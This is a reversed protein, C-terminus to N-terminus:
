FILNLVSGAASVGTNFATAGALVTQKKTERLTLAQMNEMRLRHMEEEYLNLAEKLSNARSNRYYSAISRVADSYWYDEPLYRMLVPYVDKYKGEAVLLYEEAKKAYKKRSLKKKIEVLLFAILILIARISARIIPSSINLGIFYSIILAIIFGVIFNKKEEKNVIGKVSYAKESFKEIVQLPEVIGTLETICEDINLDNNKRVVNLNNNNAETLDNKRNKKEGCNPCFSGNASIEAGCKECFM